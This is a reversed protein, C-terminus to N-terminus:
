FVTIRCFFSLIKRFTISLMLNCNFSFIKLFNKLNLVVLTFTVNKLLQRLEDIDKRLQQNEKKLATVDDCLIDLKIKSCTADSSVDLNCIYNFSFFLFIVM